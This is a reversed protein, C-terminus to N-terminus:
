ISAYKKRRMVLFSGFCLLVTIVALSACSRFYVSLDDYINLSYFCETILAAPNIRNLLPISKEVIDKMNGVMLGSFFCFVMSVGVCLGNKTDKSMRGASGIFMGMSVGTICGFFGALLILGAKSGLDIKLILQMYVIATLFALFQITVGVLFDAITGKLKGTPSVAKRAGIESLDAQAHFASQLGLFSGYLCVMALLAYFYQVMMNANDKGLSIQKNEVMNQSMAKVLSELAEPHSKITEEVMQNMQVYQDSIEKLITQNIGNEKVTLRVDDGVTYFGDIKDESLLKKAKKLSTKQVKLLQDRGKGSLEETVRIFGEGTKAAKTEVVAVPVAKLEESGNLLNGFGFHFLTALILPFAFCWFISSKNRISAKFNYKYLHWFM